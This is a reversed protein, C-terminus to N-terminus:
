KEDIDINQLAQMIEIKEGDFAKEQDIFTICLDKQKDICREPIMWRAFVTKRSGKSKKLGSQEWGIEDQKKKKNRTMILRLINQTIHSMLSLLRYNNCNLLDGKKLLTIFISEKMQRPIKGSNYINNIFTQIQTKRINECAEIIEKSINDRRTVEGNKM